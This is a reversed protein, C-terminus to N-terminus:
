AVPEVALLLLVSVSVSIPRAFAEFFPGLMARSQVPRLGAPWARALGARLGTSTFAVQAALAFRTPGGAEDRRWNRPYQKHCGDHQRHRAFPEQRSRHPHCRDPQLAAPDSCKQLSQPGRDIGVHRQNRGGAEPFSGQNPKARRPRTDALERRNAKRQAVKKAKQRELRLAEDCDVPRITRIDLRKRTADDLNLEEGLAAATWYKGAGVDEILADTEEDSLWPAWLSAWAEIYKKGLQALHDAM